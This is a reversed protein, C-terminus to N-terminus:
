LSSHWGADGESSSLLWLNGTSSQEHGTYLDQGVKFLSGALSVDVNFSSQAVSSLQSIVSM